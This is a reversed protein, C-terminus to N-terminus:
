RYYIVMAVVQSNECILALFFGGFLGQFEQM